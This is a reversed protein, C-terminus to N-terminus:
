EVQEAYHTEITETPRLGLLKQSIARGLKEIYPPLVISAHSGGIATIHLRDGLLEGWGMTVDETVKRDASFLEVKLPMSSTSPMLPAQYEVSAKASAQYCAVIRKVFDMDLYEPLISERQCLLIMSDVDNESALAMLEEYAGRRPYDVVNAATPVLDPLQDALWHLLARSEEGGVIEDTQMQTRLFQSSGTDIMGVFNLKEGEALLRHAIEYAIMGGMSWGALQYPGSAQVERIEQLYAEAMAVISSHPTEGAVLGSAALGYVPLQADLHHMLDFAYKVEGGIPHILFLPALNGTLRIPVLNSHGQERKHTDVFHALAGLSPYVFLDRLAINISTSLRLRSVLQVALLSHGGLAFFDDHIGVKELKLVDAWIDAMRKETVTRPAVYSLDLLNGSIRDPAPLTKRDLKGNSTRPMQDLTIFYSPVMYEPLTKRLSSRLQAADPAVQGEHAVIYAALRKDGIRDERALVVVESVLKQLASEIEGLEIRFGRIKVQHDIRGLYDIHGDARCRVLDGTRYMRQGTSMAFPDPIFKEATLEPRKLYGRALGEGAIFLEGAVGVPVPNLRADLIYTRTNAIPLGISVPANAGKEVLTFTSYTTDESPGYLNFIKEITSQQYLEQVLTNSLAEGALNIVKVSSPLGRTGDQNGGQNGGQNRHVEAMASPVTNVLTVLPKAVDESFELINEVLCVSGGQSLPVFIEFISLDFCISTSGLVKALSAGDFTNLAWDIFGCANKHQIAVGKPVGTSGSTYIVYALHEPLSINELNDSAYTALVAHENHGDHDICFVRTGSVTPLGSLLHRQTLLVKPQADILMTAIRESPYAPDLPVYAGGAKLVGLMCVIMNHCRNVCIGVLVDPGVGVSRLYHALQNAQQNLSAYSMATGQHTVAIADPTRVVQAEFLQQMSSVSLRQARPLLSTTDCAALIQRLENQNLMTLDGVPCEPAIVIAELLNTFHQAMREITVQDFLSTAYDFCAHLGDEDEALVLTLDFKAAVEQDPMLEIQVSPLEIKKVSANQLLLMVQFLPTYSANREPQLAEVVQDFPIDQHAYADLTHNRVQELLSAFSQNLDVQTRLVLTNVFFGILDEIDARNRNAIPTGICIDSQGSYRALLVNFAAGLVMFLSSKTRQSLRHLQTRIPDAIHVLVSAGQYSATPPRPRDTPLML